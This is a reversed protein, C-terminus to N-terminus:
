SMSTVCLHQSHKDNLTHTFRLFHVLSSPNRLVLLAERRIELALVVEDDATGTRAEPDTIARRIASFTPAVAAKFQWGLAAATM